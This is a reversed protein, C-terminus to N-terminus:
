PREDCFEQRLREGLHVSGFRGPEGGRSFKDLPEMRGHAPSNNSNEWGRLDSRPQRSGIKLEGTDPEGQHLGDKGMNKNDNCQNSSRHRSTM